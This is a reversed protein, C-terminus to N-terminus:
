QQDPEPQDPERPWARALGQLRAASESLPQGSGVAMGLLYATLPAAPRDVTHAVVRALNLVTKNFEAGPEIGLEASATEIWRDLTSM